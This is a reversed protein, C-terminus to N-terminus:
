CVSRIIDFAHLPTNAYPTIPLYLIRKSAALAKPQSSEQMFEEQASMPKFAHRAAIGAALLLKICKNLKEYDEQEPLQIDYVWPVQRPPRRWEAPCATDYEYEIRRRENLLATANALSRRILEAHCNSMRYNHGRPHHMFDHEDTFGLSRLKKAYVADCPVSFAVAGGEEGHIVKNKYFSWCAADTWAHPRVGHAEALDEVVKLGQAAAFDHIADMNCRRGYMHTALIARTYKTARLLTPDICLSDDCDVFVPVHGAMAIARACAVMNFDCLLIESRTPLEMAEFALHLAATGSACAVVDTACTWEGFEHELLKHAEM